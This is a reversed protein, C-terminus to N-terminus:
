SYNQQRLMQELMRDSSFSLESVQQRLADLEMALRRRKKLQAVQQRLAELEAVELRLTAAAAAEARLIEVEASLRANERELIRLVQQTTLLEDRDNQAETQAEHLSDELASIQDERALLSDEFRTVLMELLEATHPHLGTPEDRGVDDSPDLVEVEAYIMATEAM